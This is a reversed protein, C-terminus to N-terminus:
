EEAEADADHAQDMADGGHRLLMEDEDGDGHQDVTPLQAQAQDWEPGLLMEDDDQDQDVFPEADWQEGDPGLLM